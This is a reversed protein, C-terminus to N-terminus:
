LKFLFFKQKPILFGAKRPQLFPTNAHKANPLPKQRQKLSEDTKM